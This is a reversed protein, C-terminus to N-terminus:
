LSVPQKATLYLFSAKINNVSTQTPSQLLRPRMVHVGVYQFYNYYMYVINYPRITDARLVWKPSKKAWNM